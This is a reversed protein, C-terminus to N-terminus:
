LKIDLSLLTIDSTSSAYISEKSILNYFKHYYSIGPSRIIYKYKKVDVDNYDVYIYGDEKYEDDVLCEVIFDREVLAKYASKNSVGLGVLLVYEM